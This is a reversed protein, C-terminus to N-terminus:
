RFKCTGTGRQRGLCTNRGSGRCGRLVGFDDVTDPLLGAGVVVVLAPLNEAEDILGNITAGVTSIPLRQLLVLSGYPVTVGLEADEDMPADIGHGRKAAFPIGPIHITLSGGLIGVVDGGITRLIPEAVLIEYGHELSLM